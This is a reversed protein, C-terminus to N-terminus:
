LSGCRWKGPRGPTCPVCSHSSSSGNTRILPFLKFFFFFDANYIIWARKKYYVFCFPLFILTIYCNIKCYFRALFFVNLWNDKVFSIKRVKIPYNDTTRAVLFRSSMCKINIKSDFDRSVVLFQVISIKPKKYKRTIKVTFNITANLNILNIASSLIVFIFLYDSIMDELISLEWMLNCQCSLSLCANHM